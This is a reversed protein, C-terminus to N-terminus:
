LLMITGYGGTDDELAIARVIHSLENATDWTADTVAYLNDGASVATSMPADVVQGKTQIWGYYTDTLVSMFCGAIGGGATGADSLDATVAMNTTTQAWAAPAGAVAAVGSSAFLVYQWVRGDDSTVRYGPTHVATAVGTSDLAQLIPKDMKETDYTLSFAM